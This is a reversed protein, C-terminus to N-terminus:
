DDEGEVEEVEAEAAAAEEVPLQFIVALAQHLPAGSLRARHRLIQVMWEFDLTAEDAAPERVTHLVQLVGAGDRGVRKLAALWAEAEAAGVGAQRSAEALAPGAPDKEVFHRNYFWFLLDDAQLADM